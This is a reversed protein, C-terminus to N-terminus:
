EYNTNKFKNVDSIIRLLTERWHKRKYKLYNVLDDCDLKSFKPRNAPLPYDITKIPYINPSNMILGMDRSIKSIEIALEYWSCFGADSFHFIPNKFKINKNNSLNMIFKWCVESLSFVSTPSGIQDSVVNISEKESFIKLLTLAFNKGYPSLLWSTRIIYARGSYGLVDMILREGLYKSKGYVNLPNTKDTTIYPKENCGDFVYDTSIQLLNGGNNSLSEALYKPGISNILFSNESNSEASDVNTFAACNIVWDPKNVEIFRNIQIKNKLNLEKSSPAIIQIEKYPLNEILARGLQGSSGTILVKM